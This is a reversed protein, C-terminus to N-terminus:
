GLILHRVGSLNPRLVSYEIFNFIKKKENPLNWSRFHKQWKLKTDGMITDNLDKLASMINGLKSIVKM